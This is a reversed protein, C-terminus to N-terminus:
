SAALCKTKKPGVGVTCLNPCDERVVGTCSRRRSDLGVPYADLDKYNRNPLLRTVTKYMEYREWFKWM